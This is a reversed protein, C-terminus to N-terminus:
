RVDEAPLRVLRARGRLPRTPSGGKDLLDFTLTWTRTSGATLKKGFDLRLLIHDATRGAAQVSRDGAGTMKFHTAKPQVALYAKDFYYQRTKTDHLHNVATV